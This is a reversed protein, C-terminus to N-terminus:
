KKYRSSIKQYYFQKIEGNTLLATRKYPNIGIVRNEKLVKRLGSTCKFYKNLEKINTKTNTFYAEFSIFGLALLCSTTKKADELPIPEDCLYTKFYLFSAKPDIEFLEKLMTSKSQIYRRKFSQLLEKNNKRHKLKLFHGDDTRIFITSKTLVFIKNWTEVGIAYLNNKFKIIYYQSKKLGNREAAKILEELKEFGAPFKYKNKISNSIFSNIDKRPIIKLTESFTINSKKNVRRQNSETYCSNGIGLRLYKTKLQKSKKRIGISYFQKRKLHRQCRECKYTTKHRKKM